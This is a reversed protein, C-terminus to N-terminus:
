SPRPQPEASRLAAAEAERRRLDRLQTVRLAAVGYRDIAKEWSMFEEHSINYRRCADEFSLRGDRVAGVVLAKRRAVWRRTEAPPLADLHDDARAAADGAHDRSVDIMPDGFMLSRWEAVAEPM